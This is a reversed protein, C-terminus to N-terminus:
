SPRANNSHSETVPLDTAEPMAANGPNAADAARLLVDIAAIWREDPTRPLANV